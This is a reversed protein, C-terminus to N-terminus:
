VWTGMDDIYAMRERRCYICIIKVQNFGGKKLKVLYYPEFPKREKTRRKTCPSCQMKYFTM